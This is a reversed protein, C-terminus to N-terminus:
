EADPHEDTDGERQNSWRRQANGDRGRQWLEVRVEVGKWRFAISSVFNLMGVALVVSAGAMGAFGIVSEWSKLIVWDMHYAFITLIAGSSGGILLYAAAQCVGDIKRKVQYTSVVGLAGLAGSLMSVLLLILPGMLPLENKWPM